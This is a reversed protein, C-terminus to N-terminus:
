APPQEDDFGWDKPVPATNLDEPWGDEDFGKAVKTESEDEDGEGEKPGAKEVKAPPAAKGKADKSVWEGSGNSAFGNPTSPSKPDITRESQERTATTVDNDVEIRLTNASGEFAYAKGVEEAAVMAKQTQQRASQIQEQLKEIRAKRLERTPEAAAKEFESKAYTLFQEQTMEKIVTTARKQVTTVVADVRALADKMNM